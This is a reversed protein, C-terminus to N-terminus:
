TVQLMKAVEWKVFSNLCLNKSCEVTNGLEVLLEMTLCHVRDGKVNVFSRSSFFPKPPVVGSQSVDFPLSVLSLFTGFPMRGSPPRVIQIETAPPFIGTVRSVLPRSEGGCNDRKQGRFPLAWGLALFDLYLQSFSANNPVCRKIPFLQHTKLSALKVFNWFWHPLRLSANWMIQSTFDKAISVIEMEPASIKSWIHLVKCTAKQKQPQESAKTIVLLISLSHSLQITVKLMPFDRTLKLLSSDHKERRSLELLSIHDGPDGSQLVWLALCCWM